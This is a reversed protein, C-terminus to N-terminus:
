SRRRRGGRNAQSEQWGDPPTSTLEIDYANSGPKVDVTLGSSDTSRYWDPTLQKGAPPPGGNEGYRQAPRERAMVAVEYSGPPLGFERGTQVKYYGSDDIKAYAASGNIDTPKFTVNGLPLPEGDLTVRGKM